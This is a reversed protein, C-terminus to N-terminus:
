HLCLCKNNKDVPELRFSEQYKYGKHVCYRNGKLDVLITPHNENKKLFTHDYVSHARSTQCALLLGLFLPRM